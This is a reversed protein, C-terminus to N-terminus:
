RPSDISCASMSDGPVACDSSTSAASSSPLPSVPCWGSSRRRAATSRPRSPRGRRGAPRPRAPRAPSLPGATRRGRASAAPPASSSAPGPPPGPPWAPRSAPPCPARRPPRPAQPTARSPCLLRAPGRGASTRQWGARHPPVRATPPLSGGPAAARRACGPCGRPQGPGRDGVPLVQGGGCALEEAVVMGRGRPDVFPQGAGVQRGPPRGVRDRQQLPDALHPRGPEARIVRVRQLMVRLRPRASTLAPRNPSATATSPSAAAQQPRDDPGCRGGPGTRAPPGPRRAGRRPRTRRRSLARGPSGPPDRARAPAAAHRCWRRGGSAPSAYRAAPWALAAM